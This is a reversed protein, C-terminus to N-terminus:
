VSPFSTTKIDMLRAEGELMKIEREKALYVKSPERYFGKISKQRLLIMRINEVQFSLDSVRVTLASSEAAAGSAQTKHNTSM